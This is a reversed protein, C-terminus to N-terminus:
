VNFKNKYPHEAEPYVYLRTIFRDRLKNKPLMGYVSHRVVEEPKEQRMQWLAKQKLGGPHGSYVGYMKQKEKKGTTVIHRANIVVVHDGCDLHRVFYPKAKGTLKHAIETAARGLIKGDVNVIHWIRVIQSQKTSKTQDEM